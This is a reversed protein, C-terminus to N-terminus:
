AKLGEMFGDLATSYVQGGILAGSCILLDCYVPGGSEPGDAFSSDEEHGPYNLVRYTYLDVQRGKYLSLDFGQEKQLENYSDYVDTWDEPIVVTKCSDFQPPVERGMEKLFSQRGSESDLGEYSTRGSRLGHVWLLIGVAAAVAIIAGLLVGPRKIKMTKIYM